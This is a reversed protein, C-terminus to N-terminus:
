VEIIKEADFRPNEESGAYGFPNCVVRTQGVVYDLSGHTHGHIWLAPRRRVLLDEVDCVFFPNLPSGKFEPAISRPSPLMHTVVISDERVASELFAVARDNEIEFWDEFGDIAQFDNMWHRPAAPDNRFWLPTGVFRRGGIDVSACDLWHLNTFRAAVERTTALVSGRDSGYFEHNGHVYIVHVFRCCLRELADSLGAANSLDGAVVIADAGEAALSDIFSRGGDAHFECHLDSVVLLRM